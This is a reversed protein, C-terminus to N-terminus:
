NEDCFMTHLARKGDYELSVLYSFSIQQKSTAKNSLHIDPQRPCTAAMEIAGALSLGYNAYMSIDPTSKVNPNAAAIANWLKLRESQMISPLANWTLAMLCLNRSTSNAQEKLLAELKRISAESIQMSRVYSISQLLPIDSSTLPTTSCLTHASAAMSMFLGDLKIAASSDPPFMGLYTAALRNKLKM